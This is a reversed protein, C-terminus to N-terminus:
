IDFVKLLRNNIHWKTNVTKREQLSVSAAPGSKAFFVMIMQKFTSRLRKFKVPPSIGAYLQVSYQQKNEQDYQWVFSKDSMLIDWFWESKDGVFTKFM